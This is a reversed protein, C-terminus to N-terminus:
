KLYTLQSLLNDFKTFTSEIESYVIDNYSQKMIKFIKIGIQTKYQWFQHRPTPNKYQENRDCQMAFGAFQGLM